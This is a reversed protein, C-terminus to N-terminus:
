SFPDTGLINYPGLRDEVLEFSTIDGERDHVMTWNRQFNRELFRANNTRGDILVFTGPLLIPEMVLLDASM